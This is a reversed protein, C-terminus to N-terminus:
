ASGVFDDAEHEAFFAKCLDVLARLPAFDAHSRRFTAGTQYVGHGIDMPVAFLQGGPAMTTFAGPLFCLYDDEALLRLLLVLSATTTAIVPIRGTRERVLHETRTRFTSIGGYVLWPFRHLAENDQPDCAHIPHGARAVVRDRFTGMVDTAFEEHSLGTDPRVGLCVDVRGTRLVDVFTDAALHEVELRLKPYAQRLQPIVKPLVVATWVPGASLRLAGDFEAGAGRLSERSMEWDRSLRSAVALLRVGFSTLVLGRAERTFIPTGLDDELLRISRSLAPQSINLAEAARRVGGHEVVARFRELLGLKDIM